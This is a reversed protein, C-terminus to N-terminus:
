SNLKSFVVIIFCHMKNTFDMEFKKSDGIYFHITCSQSQRPKSNSNVIDEELGLALFARPDRCQIHLM